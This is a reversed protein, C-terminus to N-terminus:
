RILFARICFGCFPSSGQIESCLMFFGSLSLVRQKCISIRFIPYHVAFWRTIKLDLRENRLTFTVWNKRAVTALFFHKSAPKKAPNYFAKEQIPPLKRQNEASPFWKCLPLPQYILTIYNCKASLRPCIIRFSELRPKCIDM